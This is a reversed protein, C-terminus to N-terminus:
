SKLESRILERLSPYVLDLLALVEQPSMWKVLQIDEETQPILPQGSPAYMRYWRTNKLMRRKKDYFIHHTKKSKGTIMVDLIGTEETVERLAAKKKSELTKGKGNLKGKPLDWHGRRYILLLEGKENRIIGGAATVPMLLSFLDKRLDVFFDSYLVMMKVSPDKEFDRVLGALQELSSVYHYDGSKPPKKRLLLVRDNLYIRM